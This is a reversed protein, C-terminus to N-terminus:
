MAQFLPNRNAPLLGDVAGPNSRLGPSHARRPQFRPFRPGTLISASHKRAKGGPSVHHPWLDRMVLRM